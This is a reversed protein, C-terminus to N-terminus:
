LLPIKCGLAYKNYVPREISSFPLAKIFIDAEAYFSGLCLRTGAMYDASFYLNGGTNVTFNMGLFGDLSLGETYLSLKTVLPFDGFFIETEEVKGSVYFMGAEVGLETFDSTVFMLDGWFGARLGIIVDIFAIKTDYRSFYSIGTGVDSSIFGKKIATNQATLNTVLLGSLILFLMLFRKM